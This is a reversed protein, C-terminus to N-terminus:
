GLGLRKMARMVAMPNWAAGRPSAISRATLEAAIDRYSKGVLEALVPRL